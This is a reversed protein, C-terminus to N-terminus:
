QNDWGSINVDFMFLAKALNTSAALRVSTKEEADRMIRTWFAKLEAKDPLDTNMSEIEDQIRKRIEANKLLRNGQSYATKKSYGARIASQTANHTVAYWQCFLRQRDNM